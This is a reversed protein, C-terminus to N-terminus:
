RRRRMRDHLLLLHAGGGSLLSFTIAFLLNSPARILTPYPYSAFLFVLIYTCVVLIVASVEKGDTHSIIEIELLILLFVAFAFIASILFFEQTGSKDDLAWLFARSESPYTEVFKIYLKKSLEANASHFWFIMFQTASGYLAILIAYIIKYIKGKEKKEELVTM